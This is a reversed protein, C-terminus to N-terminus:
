RDDEEDDGADPDDEDDGGGLAETLRAVAGSYVYQEESTRAGTVLGATLVFATISGGTTRGSAVDSVAEWIILTVAGFLLLIVLATM